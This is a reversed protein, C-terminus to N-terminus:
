GSATAPPPSRIAIDSARNQMRRQMLLSESPPSLGISLMDEDIETSHERHLTNHSMGCNRTSNYICENRWNNVDIGNAVVNSAGYQKGRVIKGNAAYFNQYDSNYQPQYRNQQVGYYFNNNNKRCNSNNSNNNISNNNNNTNNTNGNVTSSPPSTNQYNINNTFNRYGKFRMPNNYEMSNSNSRYRWNEEPRIITRTNIAIPKKKSYYNDQSLQPQQQFPRQMPAYIGRDESKLCDQSLKQPSLQKVNEPLDTPLKERIEMISDLGNISSFQKLASTSRRTYAVHPKSPVTADDNHKEDVDDDDDIVTGVDDNGANEKISGNVHDDNVPDIHSRNECDNDNREIDMPYRDNDDNDIDDDNLAVSDADIILGDVRNIYNVHPEHQQEAGTADDNIPHNTRVCESATSQIIPSEETRDGGRSPQYINPREKVMYDYKM